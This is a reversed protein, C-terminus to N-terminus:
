AIKRRVAASGIRCRGRGGVIGQWSQSKRLSLGRQQRIPQPKAIVRYARIAGEGVVRLGQEARIAGTHGM